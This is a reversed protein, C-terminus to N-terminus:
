HGVEGVQQRLQELEGANDAHDRYGNRHLMVHLGVNRVLGVAHDLIPNLHERNNTLGDDREENAEVSGIEFYEFMPVHSEGDEGQDSDSYESDGPYEGDTRDNIQVPNLLDSEFYTKKLM